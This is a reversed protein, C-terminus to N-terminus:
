LFILPTNQSSKWAHTAATLLILIYWTDSLLKFVWFSYYWPSRVVVYIKKWSVEGKLNSCLIIKTLGISLADFISIFSRNKTEQWSIRSFHTIKRGQFFVQWQAYTIKRIRRLTHPFWVGLKSVKGKKLLPLNHIPMYQPWTSIRSNKQESQMWAMRKFFGSRSRILM